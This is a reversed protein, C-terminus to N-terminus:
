KSATINKELNMEHYLTTSRIFVNRDVLNLTRDIKDTIQWQLREPTGVGKWPVFYSVAPQEKDGIFNTELKIVKPEEKHTNEENSQASVLGGIVFSLFLVVGAIMRNQKLLFNSVTM